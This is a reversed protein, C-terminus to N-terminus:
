RDELVGMRPLRLARRRPEMIGPLRVVPMRPPPRRAMARGPLRPADLWPADLPQPRPATARRAM